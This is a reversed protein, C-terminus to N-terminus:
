LFANYKLSIQDYSVFNTIQYTTNNHLSLSIFDNKWIHTKSTRTSKRTPEVRPKSRSIPQIPQTQTLLTKTPASSSQIPLTQSPPAAISQFVDTESLTQNRSQNIVPHQQIVENNGSLGQHKDSSEQQLEINRGM